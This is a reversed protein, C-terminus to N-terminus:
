GGSLMNTLASSQTNAQEIAQEMATFQSYYRQQVDALHDKMADIQDDYDQINKGLFFQDNSSGASGAKQTVKSMTNSITDNLRKMIGESNYDDGSQTFLKMVAEPNAAIAQKLKTEDVVLKGNDTYDSSTTIGIESLQDFDSDVGDVKTYLATRMQTLGEPLITDESLMGSQAKENWLQIQNDTMQQQQQDTLPAYDRNRKESVKDNIAKITDNYKDIWSTIKDFIQNDDDDINVSVDSTIDKKINFTVGNLTVTNSHSTVTTGNITMSADTGSASDPMGFLSSFLEGSMELDNDSGSALHGTQTGSISVEQSGNGYFASVNAKSASIKSMITNISQTADFSFSYSKMNGDADPTKITGSLLDKDVTGYSYTASASKVTKNFTLQGTDPNVLVKNEAKSNDFSKQDFFINSSDYTVTDGSDTTATISIASKDDILKHSLSATKGDSNIKVNDANSSDIATTQYDFGALYDRNAWLSKTPDIESGDVGSKAISDTSKASAAKATTAGTITYSAKAANSSATATIASEDSSTATRALYTGQLAMTQTLSSLDLLKSNMDRYDDQQWELLQKQQELQTLPVQEAEMLKNVMSDIDLGSALGFMRNSGDNILFSNSSSGGSSGSSSLPDVM